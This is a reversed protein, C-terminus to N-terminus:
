QLTILGGTVCSREGTHRRAALGALGVPLVLNRTYGGVSVYLEDRRRLLKM